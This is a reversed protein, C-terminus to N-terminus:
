SAGKGYFIVSIRSLTEDFAENGEFVVLDARIADGPTVAARASLLVPGRGQNDLGTVARVAGAILIRTWLDRNAYGGAARMVVSIEAWVAGAPAIVETSASLTPAADGGSVVEELMVPTQVGAVFVQAPDPTGVWWALAASRASTAADLADSRETPQARALLVNITWRDSM